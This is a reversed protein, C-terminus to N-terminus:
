DKKPMTKELFAIVKDFIHKQYFADEGHSVGEFVYLDCPVNLEQMRDHLYYSHEIPVFQDKDGHLIMIPPMKANLYKETMGPDNTEDSDAGKKKSSYAGHGLNLWATGYFEVIAQVRSSQELYDGQEFEVMDETAGVFLSLCAGASEGMLCIRNPDIFFDKCHSRLYRVAAKVDVIPDPFTAENNTRYEVSAVIYGKQAFYVLEPIWVDKDMVSFGGGCLWIILPRPAQNNREKPMLISMKLPRMTNNFWYVAHKYTVDTVLTLSEQIPDGKKLKEIM